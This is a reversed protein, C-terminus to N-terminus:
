NVFLLSLKQDSLDSRFLLFSNYMLFCFSTMNFDLIICLCYQKRFQFFSVWIFAYIKKKFIFHLKWCYFFFISSVSNIFNSLYFLIKPLWNCWYFTYVKCLIMFVHVIYFLLLIVSFYFLRCWLTTERKLHRGEHIDFYRCFM